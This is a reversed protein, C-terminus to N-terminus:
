VNSRLHIRMDSERKLLRERFGNDLMRKIIDGSVRRELGKNEQRKIRM